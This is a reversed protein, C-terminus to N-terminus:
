IVPIWRQDEGRLNAPLEFNTGIRIIDGTVDRNLGSATLQDYSREVRELEGVIAWDRSMAYEASAAVRNEDFNRVDLNAVTGDTFSM